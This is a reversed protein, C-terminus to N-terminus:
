ILCRAQRLDISCRGLTNQRGEDRSKMITTLVEEGEAQVPRDTIKRVGALTRTNSYVKGATEEAQRALDNVFNRQDKGISRKVERNAKSYRTRAETKKAKTRSSNLMDKEKKRAEIKKLTDTSVYAKHQKSKRGM